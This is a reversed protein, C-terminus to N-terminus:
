YAALVGSGSDATATLESWKRKLFPWPSVSLVRTVENGLGARTAARLYDVYVALTAPSIDRVEAFGIRWLPWWMGEILRTAERHKPLSEEVMGLAELSLALTHAARWQEHKAGRMAAEAGAAEAQERARAADGLELLAQALYIRAQTALGAMGLTVARELANALGTAALGADGCALQMRADLLAARTQYHPAQLQEADRKADAIPEAARDPEESELYAAGLCLRAEVEAFRAKSSTAVQLAITAHSAASEILGAHTYWEALAAGAVAERHRDSALAAAQHAQGLCQWADGLDGLRMRALGINILAELGQARDDAVVVAAAMRNAAELAGAMDGTDLRVNAENGAIYAQLYAAQRPGADSSLVVAEAKTLYDMASPYEALVQQISAIGILGTSRLFWDGSSAVIEAEALAGRPEGLLELAAVLGQRARLEVDSNGAHQAAEIAKGYADRALQFEGLRGYGIGLHQLGEARARSDGLEEALAILRPCVEVLGKSDAPGALARALHCLDDLHVQADDRASGM